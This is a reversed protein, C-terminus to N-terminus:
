GGQTATIILVDDNNKLLINQWDSKPIIEQNVAIAIGNADIKIENLLKEISIKDSFQHNKNNVTIQIM